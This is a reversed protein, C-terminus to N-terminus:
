RAPVPALPKTAREYDRQKRLYDASGTDPTNDSQWEQALGSRNWADLESIVEARRRTSATAPVHTQEEAHLVGQAQARALDERVAARTDTSTAPPVYTEETAHVCTLTAWAAIALASKALKPAM